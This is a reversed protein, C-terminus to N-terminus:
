SYSTTTERSVAVIIKRFAPSHPPPHHYGLIINMIFYYYIYVGGRRLLLKVISDIEPVFPPTPSILHTLSSPRESRTDQKKKQWGEEVHCLDEDTTM